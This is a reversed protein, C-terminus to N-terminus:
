PNVGMAKLFESAPMGAKIKTGKVQSLATKGANFVVKDIGKKHAYMAGGDLMAM